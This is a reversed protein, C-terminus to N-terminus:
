KSYTTLVVSIFVLITGVTLGATLKEGLLVFSFFYGFIPSLYFALSALIPGGLKIAYQNLIYGGVTGLVAVYLVPFISSTKISSFWSNFSSFETLSLVFFVLTALYIFISTIIVPSFKKQFQKSLVGYLSWIIVAFSILLNGNLSGAFLSKKELLPLSVVEIVGVLGILISFWKKFSLKNRFLFYSFIGTLIPTAGYLMQSISATTLKLGTVFLAVNLVPLFSLAVLFLFSKNLKPKEKIFFPSIALAAIIFRLFSFTFPPIKVLGIKTIPSVAGGIAAWLIIILLAKKNNNM